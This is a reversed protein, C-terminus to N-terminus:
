PAASCKSYQTLHKTSADPQEFTHAFSVGEIPSQTVGRIAQPPEIGLADLVTPVMDIAHWMPPPERRPGQYRGALLRDPQRHQRRPLSGKELPPLTHERGLVLGVTTTTPRRGAWQDMKPM